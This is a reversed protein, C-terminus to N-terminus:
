KPLIWFHRERRTSGSGAAGGRGGTGGNEGRTEQQVETELAREDRRGIGFPNQDVLIALGAGARGGRDAGWGGDGGIRLGRRRGNEAVCKVFAARLRGTIKKALSLTMVMNQALREAMINIIEFCRAGFGGWTSTVFPKLLM